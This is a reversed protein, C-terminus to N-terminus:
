TIQIVEEVLFRVDGATGTDGKVEVVIKASESTDVAQALDELVDFDLKYVEESKDIGAKPLTDDHFGYTNLMLEELDARRISFPFEAGSGVKIVINDGEVNAPDETVVYIARLVAGSRIDDTRLLKGDAAAKADVEVRRIIKKSSVPEDSVWQTLSVNAKIADITPGGTTTLALQVQLKVNSFAKAPFLYESDRSFRWFPIHIHETAPSTSAAGNQSPERRNEYKMMAALDDGELDIWGSAGGSVQLRVREVDVRVTPSTGASFEAQIFVDIAGLFHSNEVEITKTQSAEQAAFIDSDEADQQTILWQGRSGTLQEVSETPTAMLLSLPPLLM